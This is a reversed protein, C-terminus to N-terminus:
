APLFAAAHRNRGGSWCLLCSLSGKQMQLGGGRAPKEGGCLRSALITYVNAPKRM